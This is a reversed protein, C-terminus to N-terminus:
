KVGQQRLKAPSVEGHAVDVELFKCPVGDSRLPGAGVSDIPDRWRSRIEARTGRSDTRIPLNPGPTMEFPTRKFSGECGEEVKGSLAGLGATCM